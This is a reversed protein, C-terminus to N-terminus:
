KSSEKNEELFLDVSDCCADFFCEVGLDDCDICPVMLTCHRYAGREHHCWWCCCWLFYQSFWDSLNQISDGVHVKQPIDFLYGKIIITLCAVAKVIREASVKSESQLLLLPMIEWSSFATTSFFITMSFHNKYVASKVLNWIGWFLAIM